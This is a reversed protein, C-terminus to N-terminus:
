EFVSPPRDHRRATVRLKEEEVFRDRERRTM